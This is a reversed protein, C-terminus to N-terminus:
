KVYLERSYYLSNGCDGVRSLVERRSPFLGTSALGCSAPRFPVRVGGGAVGARSEHKRLLGSTRRGDLAGHLCRPVECPQSCPASTRLPRQVSGGQSRPHTSEGPPPSGGSHTGPRRCVTRERSVESAVVPGRLFDTRSRTLSWRVDEGLFCLAAGRGWVPRTSVPAGERGLPVKEGWRSGMHGPTSHGRLGGEQTGTAGM